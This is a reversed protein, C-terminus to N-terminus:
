REEVQKYGMSEAWNELQKNSFVQEPSMNDGIWGIADELLTTSIMQDIFQKDQKTTTAM